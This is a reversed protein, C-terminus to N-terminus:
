NNGTQLVSRVRGEFVGSGDELNIILKDGSMITRQQTLIVDGTMHLMEDTVFYTAKNGEAADDGNVFTVGGTAIIEQIENSGSTENEYIVKVTQAALRMEGQGVIVNGSFLATGDENDIQLQDATIEVPQSSDHGSDSLSIQTGQAFTSASLTASFAVSVLLARIIM